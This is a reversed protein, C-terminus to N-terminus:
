RFSSPSRFLFPAVVFMGLSLAYITIVLGFLTATINVDYFFLAIIIGLSAIYTHVTIIFDNIFKSRKLKHQQELLYQM